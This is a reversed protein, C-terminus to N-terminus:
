VSPHAVRRKVETNSPVGAEYLFDCLRTIYEFRTLNFGVQTMGLLTEKLLNYRKADVSAAQDNFVYGKKTPLASKFVRYCSCDALVKLLGHLDNIPNDVGQLYNFIGKTANGALLDKMVSFLLEASAGSRICVAIEEPTYAKADLVQELLQLAERISGGSNEAILQINETKNFTEPLTNWISQEELTKKLFLMIKGPSLPDFNFTTMRSVLASKSQVVTTTFIFTTNNSVDVLDLLLVDKAAASLGQFEEMLIVKEGDSDWGPTDLFARLDETFDAKSLKTGNFLRFSRHMNTEVSKCDVCENCPDGKPTKHKCLITKAVIEACLSKGSGFVGQFLIAKPLGKTKIRNYFYNKLTDLGYLQDFTRPKIDISWQM